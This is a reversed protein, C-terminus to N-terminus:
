YDNNLFYSEQIYGWSKKEQAQGALGPAAGVPLRILCKAKGLPFYIKSSSNIM